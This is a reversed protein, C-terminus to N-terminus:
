LWARQEEAQRNLSTVQQKGLAHTCGAGHVLAPQATCEYLLDRLVLQESVHQTTSHANSPNNQTHTVKYRVVM